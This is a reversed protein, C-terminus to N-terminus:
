HRIRTIRFTRKSTEGNELSLPWLFLLRYFDGLEPNARVGKLNCPSDALISFIAKNRDNCIVHELVETQDLSQVEPLNLRLEPGFHGELKLPGQNQVAYEVTWEGDQFVFKKDIRVILDPGATKVSGRWYLSLEHRDREFVDLDYEKNWLKDYLPEKGASLGELTPAQGWYDALIYRRDEKSEYTPAWSLNMKKDVLDWDIVQGGNTTVVLNISKSKFLYETHFDLNFDQRLITPVFNPGRAITEASILKEMAYAKFSKNLNDMNDWTCYFHHDQSLYLEDLASARRYKDGKVMWSQFSIHVMKTYLQNFGRTASLIQKFSSRAKTHEQPPLDAGAESIEKFGPTPFFYHHGPGHHRKMFQNPLLIEIQEFRDRAQDVFSKFAAESFPRQGNLFIGICHHKEDNNSEYLRDVLEWLEAHSGEQLNRALRFSFPLVNLTHGQSETLSIRYIFRVDEVGIRQFAETPLFTYEIRAQQLVPPLSEDWVGRTLWLGRPRKSFTKSVMTILKEIQLIRDKHFILPLLPATYGGGLVEVRKENVLDVVVRIFEPHHESMWEIFPGSFYFTFYLDKNYYIQSVLAKLNNSYYSELEEENYSVPPHFYAGLLLCIKDKM